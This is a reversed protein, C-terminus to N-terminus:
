EMESAALSSGECHKSSKSTGRGALLVVDIKNTLFLLSGEDCIGTVTPFAIAEAAGHLSQPFIGINPTIRGGMSLCTSMLKELQCGGAEWM